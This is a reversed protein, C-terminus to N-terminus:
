APATLGEGLRSGFETRKGRMHVAIDKILFPVGPFPADAAVPEADTDSPWAEALANIQPNITEIASLALAELESRQVERRAVLQALGLGDHSTYESLNM